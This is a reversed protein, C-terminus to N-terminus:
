MKCHPNVYSYQNKVTTMPEMSCTDCETVFALTNTLDIKSTVAAEVLIRGYEEWDNGLALLQWHRVIYFM